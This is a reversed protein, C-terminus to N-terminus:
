VNFIVCLLRDTDRVQSIMCVKWGKSGTLSECTHFVQELARPIMGWTEREALDGEMTFTKGSGTQGYAFICVNYGDLISQVLQSIETFM